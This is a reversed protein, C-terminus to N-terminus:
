LLLNFETWRRPDLFRLPLIDIATDWGPPIKIRSTVIEKLQSQNAVGVILGSAWPIAQGYALCIDLPSCRVLNALKSIQSISEKVIEFDSPVSEPPLLLLGQLFISRIVFRVGETKLSMLDHSDLMRRDCINEPVQFVPL